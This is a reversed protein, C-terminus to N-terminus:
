ACVEAVHFVCKGTEPTRIKQEMGEFTGPRLGKFASNFGM